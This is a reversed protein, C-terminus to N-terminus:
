FVPSRSSMTSCEGEAWDTASIRLFIPKEGWVKRARKAIELVFRLRNDLSGGYEDTRENSLPSLFQHILYGHAAHLEIFDVTFHAIFLSRLPALSRVPAAYANSTM